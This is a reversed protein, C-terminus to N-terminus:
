QLHERLVQKHLLDIGLAFILFFKNNKALLIPRSPVRATQITNSTNFNALNFFSSPSKEPAQLSFLIRSLSIIATALISFTLSSRVIM